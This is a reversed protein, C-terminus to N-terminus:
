GAVWCEPAAHALVAAVCERFERSHLVREGVAVLDLLGLFLSLPELALVRELRTAPPVPHAPHARAAPAGPVRWAAHAFRIVRYAPLTRRARAGSGPVPGATRSFRPENSPSRKPSIARSISM